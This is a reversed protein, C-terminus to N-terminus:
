TRLAAGRSARRQGRGRRGRYGRGPRGAAGPVGGQGASRAGPRRGDPGPRVRGPHPRARRSRPGRDAGRHRGPGQLRAAPGAQGSASCGRATRSGCSAPRRIRRQSRSGPWPRSRCAPGGPPEWGSTCPWRPQADSGTVAFVVATAALAELGTWTAIDLVSFDGLVSAAAAAEGRAAFPWARLVPFMPWLPDAADMEISPADVGFAGLASRSTFFCGIADPEGIALGLELAQEGLRASEEARGALQAFTAQRTLAGWRGRAHGLNGALTIYVLLEDRGAPDGRELLAGLETVIKGMQEEVAASMDQVDPVAGAEAPPAQQMTSM